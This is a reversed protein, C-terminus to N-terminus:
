GKCYFDVYLLKIWFPNLLVYGGKMVLPRDNVVDLFGTFDGLANLRNLVSVDSYTLASDKAGFAHM